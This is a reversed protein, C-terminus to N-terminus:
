PKAEYVEVLAIGTANAQTANAPASVQATYAGPELYLLMAADASNNALAFAGVQVAAERILEAEPDRTWDDNTKLASAGRFLTLQPNALTGPINFPARALTPGVGRILVRQPATGTIVFGAIVPTNPAALGRASVNVLRRAGATENDALVEYVEALVTGTGGGIVVTYSGPALTSVLAADASGARFPFAGARTVAATVATRNAAPTDWDDNQAISRNGRFVELTPDALIGSLNFPAQALAPGAARVLVQKNGTGTVVFGTILPAAPATISRVSLNVVHETGLLSEIAGAITGTTGSATRVTGSVGGNAFSLDIATQTGTTLALRGNTGLTGRATDITTGTAALFMAQGDPAVIIYGRGSSSGVLAAEYFGAQTSAYGSRAARTGDLALALEVASGSITGGNEDLRGRLTVPQAAAATDIQLALPSVNSAGAMTTLSLSFNGALDVRLDTTILGTKLGPLFGLFAASRDDRVLLAFDGAVRGDASAAFHGFYAGSFDRADVKLTAAPSTASGVINTAVVDYRGADDTTASALTFTANTAGAIATGNKRWQLTPTPAGTVGVTFSVETGAFVTQDVPATTIVPAARVNLSASASASGSLNTAVVTYRGSDPPTVNTLTLTANTAEAIAAGDKRWQYAPAPTGLAAARFTVSAGALVVQDVPTSTLFPSLAGAVFTFTRDVSEAAEYADNGAQTARVTIDGNAGTLLKNTLSGAGSVLAFSVPLGSSSTASLTLAMGAPVLLSAPEFAITQSRKLVFVASVGTASGASNTAVLEYLGAQSSAINTLSLSSNTAGALATGNRRWQLTPAPLGDVAGTLTLWDGVYVTVNAPSVAATPARLSNTVTFTHEVDSAANYNVDGGQSARVSVTGTEGTLVLTTGIISAPGSAVSFTVPLGSSATAALTYNAATAPRDPLAAFTITQARKAVSFAQDVAAAANYNVNGIQAARVTVDGAGTLTITNGSITAPGSVISFTPALGSSATATVTFPADGFTKAALAGFTLTQNAMAVTFTQEVAAAALYDANGAQAARITVSGAGTLTLTNGSITAPGNAVSFAVALGSSATASLTVAADGYTKDPLAAFTITQAAKNVTLTAANSVTSANDDTVVVDYNGTDATMVTSLLLTSTTASANGTINVGNKRWQYALTGTGTAAVSFSAANGATTTQSAPQPSIIPPTPASITFDDIALGNDSGAADVTTWQVGFTAGPAISIGALTITGTPTILVTGNTGSASGTLDAAGLTSNSALAGTGSVDLGSTNAFRWQEYQWSLNLKTITFGTNNTFSVSLTYEGSSTRLIGAAYDGGTGYAWWNGSTLTGTGTGQYTGTSQTWGTPLTVATGAYSSFNQSYSGTFNIQAFLGTGWFLLGWVALFSSRM